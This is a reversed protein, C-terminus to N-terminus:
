EKRAESCRHFIIIFLLVVALTYLLFISVAKAIGWYNAKLTIELIATGFEKEDGSILHAAILYKGPPAYDPLFFEKSSSYADGPKLKRQWALEGKMVSVNFAGYLVQYELTSIEVPLKDQNKVTISINIGEGALYTNDNTWISILLGDRSQYDIVEAEAPIYALLVIIFFILVRLTYPRM